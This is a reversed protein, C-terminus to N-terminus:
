SSRGSRRVKGEEGEKEGRIRVSTKCNPCTAYFTMKGRYEWEYGCKECKLRIGKGKDDRM